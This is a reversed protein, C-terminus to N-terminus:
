NSKFTEMFKNGYDKKHCFRGKAQFCEFCDLIRSDKSWEEMEILPQETNKQLMRLPEPASHASLDTGDTPASANVLSALLILKKIKM